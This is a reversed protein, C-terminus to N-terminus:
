SKKRVSTDGVDYKKGTIGKLKGMTTSGISARTDKVNSPKVTKTNNKIIAGKVTNGM